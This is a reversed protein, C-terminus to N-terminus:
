DVRGFLHMCVNGAGGTTLISGKRLHQRGIPLALDSPAPAPAPAPTAQLLQHVVKASVTVLFKGVPNLQKQLIDQYGGASGGCTSTTISDGVCSVRIPDGSAEAIALLMAMKFMM